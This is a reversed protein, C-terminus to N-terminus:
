LFNASIKLFDRFRDLQESIQLLRKNKTFTQIILATLEMM